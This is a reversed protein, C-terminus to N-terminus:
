QVDHCLFDTVAVAAGVTVLQEVPRDGACRMRRHQRLQHSKDRLHDQFRPHFGQALGAPRFLRQRRVPLDRIGHTRLVSRCRGVGHQRVDLEDGVHLQEALLRVCRAGRPSVGPQRAGRVAAGSHRHKRPAFVSTISRVNEDSLLKAMAPPLVATSAREISMIGGPSRWPWGRPWNVSHNPAWSCIVAMTSPARATTNPASAKQAMTPRSTPFTSPPATMARWEAWPGLSPSGWIIELRDCNPTYPATIGSASTMRIYTPNAEVPVTREPCAMLRMSPTSVGATPIRMKPAAVARSAM